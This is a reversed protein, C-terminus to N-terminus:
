MENNQSNRKKPIMTILFSGDDRFYPTSTTYHKLTEKFRYSSDLSQIAYIQELEEYEKMTEERIKRGQQIQGYKQHLRIEEREREQTFSMCTRIFDNELLVSLKVLRSIKTRQEKSETSNDEILKVFKDIEICQRTTRHYTIWTLDYKSDFIMPINMKPMEDFSYQTRTIFDAHLLHYSYLFLIM